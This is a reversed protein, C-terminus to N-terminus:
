KFSVYRKKIDSLMAQDAATLQACQSAVKEATELSKQFGKPYVCSKGPQELAACMQYYSHKSPKKLFESVAASQRFPFMWRIARFIYVLAALDALIAVGFYPFQQDYGFFVAYFVASIALFFYATFTNKKINSNEMSALEKYKDYNM